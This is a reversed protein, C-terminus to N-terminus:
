ESVVTGNFAGFLYYYGYFQAPELNSYDSGAPITFTYETGDVTFNVQLSVTGKEQLADLMYQTLCFWYNKDFVLVDGDKAAKVDKAFTKVDTTYIDDKVEPASPQPYGFNITYSSVIQSLLSNLVSKVMELTDKDIDSSPYINLTFGEDMKFNGNLMPLILPMFQLEEICYINLVDMEASPSFNDSDIDITDTITFSSLNECYIAWEGISEVSSPIVLGTISACGSFVYDEITM